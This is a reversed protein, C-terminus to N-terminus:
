LTWRRDSRTRQTSSANFCSSLQHVSVSRTLLCQLIPPSSSQSSPKGQQSTTASPLSASAETSRKTPPSLEPIGSL